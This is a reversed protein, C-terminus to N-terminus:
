QIYIKVGDLKSTFLQVLNTATRIEDAAINMDEISFNGMRRIGCTFTAKLFHGDEETYVPMPIFNVCAYTGTGFENFGKKAIAKIWSEQVDKLTAKESIIENLM